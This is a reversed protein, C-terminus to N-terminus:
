AGLAMFLVLCVVSYHRYDLLTSVEAARPMGEAKEATQSQHIKLPVAFSRLPAELASAVTIPLASVGVVVVCVFESM